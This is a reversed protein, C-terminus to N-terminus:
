FKYALGARAIHVDDIGTRVTGVTYVYDKKGFSAYLYETRATLNETFAHEIGLGVTYGVHTKTLTEDAPMIHFKSRMFAVGATGYFLTNDHAWGARARITALYSFEQDVGDASNRNHIGTFMYDGEVGVVFDDIQYNYGIMGGGVIGSGSIEPDAAGIPIYTNDVSGAAIVGGIYVGGWDYNSERIEIPPPPPPLDAALASQAGALLAASGLLSITLPRITRYM